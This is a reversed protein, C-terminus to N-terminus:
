QLTWLELLRPLHPLGQFYVSVVSVLVLFYMCIIVLSVSLQSSNELVLSSVRSCVHHALFFKRERFNVDVVFIHNCQHLIQYKESATLVDVSVEVEENTLRSM